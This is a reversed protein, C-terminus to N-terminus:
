SQLMWNELQLEDKPSAPQTARYVPQRSAPMSEPVSVPQVAPAPVAQFPAAVSSQPMYFRAHLSDLIAAAVQTKPQKPITLPERSQRFLITVENDDVAFGIDSRSIDNLVIADLHKETLKQLANELWRQSEAAFGVVVQHPRKAAGVSKLIDPNPMLRLNFGEGRAELESRKIKETAPQAVSFDSVAAAMLLLDQSPFVAEVASKMDDMRRVTQVSYLRNEALEPRTTILTVRAGRAYLEDALATGMKGSSHNTILRVPDIAEETGGATVLAHVGEFQNHHPHTLPALAQLIAEQDPLHGDGTEGCALKGAVPPLIMVNPLAALRRVNEQVAPHRWMRTNMAPVILVPKDTFTLFTTSLLDDALGQAMKALANATAPAVVLVDGQQALRIHVPVGADDLGLTDSYATEGTLATMTLPTIFRTAAETLVPVVRGAGRRFLERALDCAKYAAISGTIGLVITKQHFYM